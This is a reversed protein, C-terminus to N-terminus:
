VTMRMIEQYADLVKNRVQLLTRFSIDAKEMAIIVEHISGSGKLQMDNIAEEAQNQLANAEKVAGQLMEAFSGGGKSGSTRGKGGLPDTTMNVPVSLTKM